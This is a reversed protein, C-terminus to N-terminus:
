AKEGAAYNFHESLTPNEIYRDGEKMRIEAWEGIGPSTPEVLPRNIREALERRRKETAERDLTREFDDKCIVGFINKTIDEGIIGDRLNQRVKEPDRDLPNGWGGGGPSVSNLKEGKRVLTQGAASTFTRSGDLHGVYVGGGPSMTGGYVGYPPNRYGEGITMSEMVDGVPSFRTRIGPGGIWQGCGQSDVEVEMQEIVIPYMMEMQETSGCTLGGLASLSYWLPWGDTNKTAGQGGGGSFTMCAWPVGTEPHIGNFNTINACHPSGAPVKDPIAEAMAINIAVQLRESPGQTSQGTAAPFEALCITGLEAEATIHKLMGHNQPIDSDMYCLFPVTSAAQMVAYTCNASGASQPGSGSYDIHINGDNVTVKAKIPIDTRGRGDNDAWTLGEYTGNPIKKLDEMSRRDAYDMLEDVYRLVMDRGYKECLLILQKRAVGISGLQAQMDGQMSEPYRINALYLRMMDDRIKGKEVIKVPPIILGEQYITTASPVISSAEMAGIDLQHGRAVSWFSIKGDVFVPTATVVDPLHTNGGYPDNVMIVDGDFIDDKFTKIVEILLTRISNCHIPLCEAMSIQRPGDPHADYIMCSYDRALSLLSSWATLELALTMEEGIAEFRSRIVSFTVPDIEFKAENNEINTM